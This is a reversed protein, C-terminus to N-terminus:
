SRLAKYRELYWIAKDIDEIPSDHKLDARWIYKTANGLLFGMHETIQICEIGSPHSRYHNPNIADSQLEYDTPKDPVDWEAAPDAGPDGLGDCQLPVERKWKYNGGPVSFLLWKTHPDSFYATLFGPQPFGFNATAYDAWMEDFERIDSM